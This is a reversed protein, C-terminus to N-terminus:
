PELVRRVGSAFSSRARPAPPQRARSPGEGIVQRGESPASRAGSSLRLTVRSRPLFGQSTTDPTQRPPNHISSPHNPTAAHQRSPLEIRSRTTNLASDTTTAAARPTTVFAKELPHAHGHPIAREASTTSKIPTCSPNAKNSRPGEPCCPSDGGETVTVPSRETPVTVPPVTTVPSLLTTAGSRSFASSPTAPGGRSRRLHSPGDIRTRRQPAVNLHGAVPRHSRRDVANHYGPIVTHHKVDTPLLNGLNGNRGAESHSFPQQETGRKFHVRHQHTRPQAWIGPHDPGLWTTLNVHQHVPAQRTLARQHPQDTPRTPLALRVQRPPHTLPQPRLAPQGPQHPQWRRVPPRNSQPVQSVASCRSLTSPPLQM